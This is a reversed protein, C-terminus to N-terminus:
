LGLPPIVIPAMLLLGSLGRGPFITRPCLFALAPGGVVGLVTTGMASSVPTRVGRGLFPAAFLPGYASLTFTGGPLYIPKSRLSSYVLPFFPGVVLAVVAFWVLAQGASAPLWRARHRAAVPVTAELPREIMSTM